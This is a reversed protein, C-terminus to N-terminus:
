RVPIDSVFEFIERSDVDSLDFANITKWVHRTYRIPDDQPNNGDAREFNEEVRHVFRGYKKGDEFKNWDVGVNSKLLEIQQDANLGSLEKHPLYTQATQQKSNRVCDLQRYLFWAFVDNYTPVNWCKCDFQCLPMSSVTDQCLQIMDEGNLQQSNYKSCNIYKLSSLNCDMMLQNFKSTALSAIISLLKTLRYGFFSETNPQEFDTLVLSIEDSQVYAFKCGSINACLYEATKNMMTIFDDDFPKKFRNKILKSFSRGDLFVLVYSKPMLKYDTLGRFYEMRDKLTNFRM